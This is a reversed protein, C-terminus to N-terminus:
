QDRYPFINSGGDVIAVKGDRRVIDFVLGDLHSADTANANAHLEATGFLFEHECDQIARYCKSAKGWSVARLRGNALFYHFELNGADVIFQGNRINRNIYSTDGKSLAVCIDFVSVRPKPRSRVWKFVLGCGFTLLVISCISFQKLNVSKM